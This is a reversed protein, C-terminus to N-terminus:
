KFIQKCCCCFGDFVTCCGCCKLVMYTVAIVILFALAMSANASWIRNDNKFDQLNKLHDRNEEIKKLIKPMEEFPLSSFRVEMFDYNKFSFESIYESQNLVNGTPIIYEFNYNVSNSSYLVKELIKLSCGEEITLINTGKLVGEEKSHECNLFYKQPSSFIILWKNNSLFHIKSFNEQFVMRECDSKGNKLMLAFECSEKSYSTIENILCIREDNRLDKCNELDELYGFSDDSKYLFKHKTQILSLSEDKVVPFPYIKYLKFKMNKVIPTRIVFLLEGKILYVKLDSISVIQDFNEINIDVPFSLDNDLFLEGNRLHELLKNHDVVSPSIINLKAFELASMIAEYDAEVSNVLYNLTFDYTNLEVAKEIAMSNKTVEQTFNRFKEMNENLIGIKLNIARVDNLIFDIKSQLIQFNRSTNSIRKSATNQLDEIAQELVQSHNRTPTGILDNLFNGGGEFVAKASRKNRSNPAIFQLSEYKQELFSIKGSIYEHFEQCSTAEYKLCLKGAELYHDKLFKLQSKQKTINVIYITEFYSNYHKLSGQSEYFLGKANEISTYEM